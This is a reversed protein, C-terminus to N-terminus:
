YRGKALNNKGTDRLWQGFCAIKFGIWELLPSNAGFDYEFDIGVYILEQGLNRMFLWLIFRGSAYRQNHAM